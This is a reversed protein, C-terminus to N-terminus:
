PRADGPTGRQPVDPHSGGLARSLALGATRVAPAMREVDLRGSRGTVSLAGLVAGDAGFVPAAACVVGAASEQRDYSVGSRRIAALERALAGPMVVTYPTLRELGAEVRARALSPPAFAMVAKGVGTAHAPMRGGVQSPLSQGDRSRLIEVYVVELGEMVALHVTARTAERLDELYPLAADKLARQRPVAQGLEFLRMGLRVGPGSRELLGLRVLEVVIRHATSRPLGARRAIEAAGLEGSAGRFADLVASARELVSDGPVDRETPCMDQM